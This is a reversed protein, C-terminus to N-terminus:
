LKMPTFVTDEVREINASVTQQGRGKNTKIKKRKITCSGLTKNPCM